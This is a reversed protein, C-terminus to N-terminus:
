MKQCLCPASQGSCKGSKPKLGGKYSKPIKIASVVDVVCLSNLGIIVEYNIRKRRQKNKRTV